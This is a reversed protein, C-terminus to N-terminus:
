PGRLLRERADAPLAAVRIQVIQELNGPSLELLIQLMRARDSGAAVSFRRTFEAATIGALRRELKEDIALEAGVPDTRSRKQLARFEPDAELTRRIEENLQKDCDAVRGYSSRTDRAIHRLPRRSGEEPVLFREEVLARVLRERDM